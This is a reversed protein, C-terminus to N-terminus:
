GPLPGNIKLVDGALYLSGAILVVPPAKRDAAHGIRRLAEDVSVAHTATLGVDSAFKALTEPPVCDHEPIPVTHVATVRGAFAKLFAAADKSQLMGLVLHFPTAAIDQARFADVIVRAASPNHGGDLWLESGQPLHQVFPGSELRQLRAPWEAWGPGARLAADPVALATQHRLMAAALGVNDIQHAGPLRPMGLTLKAKSDRYHLQDQYIGVDWDIGRAIIRAGKPGAVEGIAAAVTQPYRSTVLPVGKKAIGAKERAIDLISHGLFQQHDLGLQAIGCVAATPVVNTADWTGGLGVEIVCADAPTRSFATFAAATTLEFFTIQEGNNVSIVDTLLEILESDTILRGALRIRENFRVLHPSTFVHVRHGAAELCARLFAATSGKGNTGSVHFVPPLHHHPNGLKGLLRELRGLTLDILNPHLAKAEVLLADLAPNDSRAGETAM